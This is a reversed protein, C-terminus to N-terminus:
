TLRTRRATDIFHCRSRHDSTEDIPRLEPASAACLQQEEASLEVLLPCRSRLACGEEGPSVGGVAPTRSNEGLRVRRRTREVAPDPVPIASILARTYPHSPEAFLADTAALEVIRGAYMVAIRDAVHRVVSLDHSVFLCSLGLRSRLDTLLNVIGAQVSVDLSSVPEDLVVIRPELALARAIGVRQRQGGSLQHPFRSAHDHDLGVLALLEGVRSRIAARDKGFAGLPEAILDFVPMRPDLAGTPDQFVVQLDRRLERRAAKTLTAVSQGLVVIEGATPPV